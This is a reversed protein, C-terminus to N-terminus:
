PTGHKRRHVVAWRDAHIRHWGADRDLLSVLREEPSLITWNIGWKRVAADFAATDGGIIRHHGLMFADGYLDARGDIYPRIGSLILPGGFSYSNLVPQSRLV